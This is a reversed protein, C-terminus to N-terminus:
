TADSPQQNGINYLRDPASRSAPDPADGGWESDPRAPLDLVRTIRKIIDDIYTFDRHHRGFNYLDIPHDQLIGEPFKFYVMDPRGCSGYVTFFHLGTCPIDFLHAYNHAM